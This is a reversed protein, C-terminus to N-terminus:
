LSAFRSVRAANIALLILGAAVMWAGQPVISDPVLWLVGIVILFLVWGVAETHRDDTM